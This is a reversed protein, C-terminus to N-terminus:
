NKKSKVRKRSHPFSPKLRDAFGGGEGMTAGGKHSKGPKVAKMKKKM